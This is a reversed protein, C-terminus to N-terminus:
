VTFKYNQESPRKNRLYAKELNLTVDTMEMNFACVHEDFPFQSFRMPCGFTVDFQSKLKIVHDTGKKRIQLTAMERGLTNKLNLSAMRQIIPFPTWVRSNENLWEVCNSVQALFFQCTGLLNVVQSKCRVRPDIWTLYLSVDMTLLHKEHDVEKLDGVILSMNVM